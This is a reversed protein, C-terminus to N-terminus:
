DRRGGAKRVRTVTLTRLDGANQPTRETAYLEVEAESWDGLDVGPGPELYAVVKGASRFSFQPQGREMATPRIMGPYTWQPERSKAAPRSASESDGRSVSTAAPRSPRGAALRKETVDHMRSYCLNALEVDGGPRNQNAAVQQYLRDARDYEQKRNAEEAKLYTPDTPWNDPKGRAAPAEAPLAALPARTAGATPTVEAPDGPAPLRPVPPSIVTFAPTAEGKAPQIASRPLYRREGKAPQIPTWSTRGASTDLYARGIVMVVTGDPLQDKSVQLPAALGPRGMMVAITPEARIVANRPTNQGGGDLEELALTRVWSVQGRPPEVAVWQSGVEHLVVVLEGRALSGTEEMNTGAGSRLTVNDATVTALYPATQAHGTSIAGLWVLCTLATRM